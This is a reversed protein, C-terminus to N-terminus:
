DNSDDDVERLPEYSHCRSGKESPLFFVDHPHRERVHQKCNSANPCEYGLCRKSLDSM